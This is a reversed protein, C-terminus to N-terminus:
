VAVLVVNWIGLCDSGVYEQVTPCHLACGTWSLVDVKYTIHLGPRIKTKWELNKRRGYDEEKQSGQHSPGSVFFCKLVRQGRDRESSDIMMRMKRKAVKKQADM